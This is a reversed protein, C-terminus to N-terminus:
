GEPINKKSGAFVNTPLMSEEFEKPKQSVYSATGIGRKLAEPSGGVISEKPTRIRKREPIESAKM